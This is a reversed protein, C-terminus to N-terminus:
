VGVVQWLSYILWPGVWFEAEYKNKSLKVNQLKQAASMSFHQCVSTGDCSHGVLSNTLRFPQHLIEHGDDSDEDYSMYNILNKLNFQPIYIQHM